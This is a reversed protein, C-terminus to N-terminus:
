PDVRFRTPGNEPDWRFLDAEFAGDVDRVVFHTRSAPLPEGHAADEDAWAGLNVYTPDRGTARRVEPVHTHGMVVFATPLLAGLRAAQDRLAFTVDIDGRSRRWLWALPLAVALTCGLAIGLAPTWRAVLGWVLLALGFVAFAIRDLMVGALLRFISRTLPPRHLKAIARLKVLSIQRAESLLTMRREHETKLWRAAAGFHDRWVAILAVVAVLFRRGLHLLGTLGLRLAFRVYDFVSADHHGAETMGRTPRVVYRLLVDALSRLSRRPDSPSVPVLLHEYSCFSDYQHGHEVFVRGEEYYFWERFEVREGAGPAHASLEERFAVQVPHWHFDVDHNGRVVVISNARGERSVRRAGRLDPSEVTPPSGDLSTEPVSSTAFRALAAFVERHEHAVRRLKALTHDASTGLGHALEEENPETELAASGPPVAMGGFDVLDGAIVLRWPLGNERNMRYWDLLACLERDRRASAESRPPLDPRAHQVLDSGLHVDSFILLNHPM